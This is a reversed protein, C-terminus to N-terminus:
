RCAATWRDVQILWEVPVTGAAAARRAVREVEALMPETVTSASRALRRMQADAADLRGQEILFTLKSVEVFIRMDASVCALSYAYAEEVMERSFSSPEFAPLDATVPPRLCRFVVSCSRPVHHVCVFHRRLYWMILHNTAMEPLYYAFDQQVVYSEGAMLLPFFRSVIAQALGWDKMADVFLFEVPDAPPEYTCLDQKLVRVRDRYPSLLSLVDAYFSEGPAYRRPLATQGAVADMWPHWEFLDLADIVPGPGALRNGALGRALSLTTAGYWCGLDVIKGRGQYGERAYTELLCLEADTTMGYANAPRRYAAYQRGAARLWDDPSAGTRLVSMRQDGRHYMGPEGSM